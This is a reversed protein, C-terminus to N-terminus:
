ADFTPKAELTSAATLLMPLAMGFAAIVAPDFQLQFFKEIPEVMSMSGCFSFITAPLQTAITEFPM